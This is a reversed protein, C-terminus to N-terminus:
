GRQGHCSQKEVGGDHVEGAGSDDGGNVGGGCGEGLDVEGGDNEAADILDSFGQEPYPKCLIKYLTSSIIFGM